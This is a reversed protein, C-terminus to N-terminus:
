ENGGKMICVIDMVIHNLLYIASTVGCIPVCIWTPGRKFQPINVWTYNWFQKSIKYGYYVMLGAFILMITSIIVSLMAKVKENKLMDSISTFAFHRKEYVMAGAGMFAAWIFSYMAVDETWTASIGAYRSFMQYVVTMLFISLFVAGVAVQIKQLYGVAKKM